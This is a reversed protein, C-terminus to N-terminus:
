FTRKPGNPDGLVDPDPGDWAEMAALQEPTLSAIFGPRSRLRREAEEITPLGMVRLWLREYWPHTVAPRPPAFIPAASTRNRM